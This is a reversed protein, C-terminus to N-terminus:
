WHKNESPCRNKRVAARMEVYCGCKVCMGSNLSDCSSCKDLRARYLEDDAKIEPDITSIYESVTQALEEEGAQKLLCRCYRKM